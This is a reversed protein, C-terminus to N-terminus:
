GHELKNQALHKVMMAKYVDLQPLPQHEEKAQEDWRRLAIYVDCLPDAEFAVAEEHVMIGGQFELTKKSAESLRNYYDPFKYTLYRKAEVHSAVLRTVKESFGKGALYEAGLKEHDVLGFGDMQKVKEQPLVHECLHGIDHFFAALVVDDDFGEAHALQACQVMHELQSVPEGIYDEHGYKEYLSMIENVTQEVM